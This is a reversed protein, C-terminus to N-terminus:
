NIAMAGFSSDNSSERAKKYRNAHIGEVKKLAKFRKAAKAFLEAHERSEEGQEKFEAAASEDGESRALEEFEPYMQESEYREGEEALELLREVTLNKENSLVLELHAFAHATEQEATNEFLQAIEENGLERAKKAFFLYKRNATPGCTPWKEPNGSM